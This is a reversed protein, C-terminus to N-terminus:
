ICKKGMEGILGIQGAFRTGLGEGFRAFLARMPSKRMKVLTKHHQNGTVQGRAPIIQTNGRTAKIQWAQLHDQGCFKVAGINALPLQPKFLEM